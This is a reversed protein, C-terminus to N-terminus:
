KRYPMIVMISALLCPGSIDSLGEWELPCLVSCLALFVTGKGYSCRPVPHAEASNGKEMHIFANRENAEPSESNWQERALTEQLRVTAWKRGAAISVLKSRKGDCRWIDTASGYRKWSAKSGLSSSDESNRGDM